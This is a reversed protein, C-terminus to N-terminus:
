ITFRARAPTPDRSAGNLARVLFTYSGRRLHHYSKPSRCAGFSPRRAQHHSKPQRVLACQFGTARGVARFRFTASGTKRSIKHGTIRSNASLLTFTATVQRDADMTVACVGNGSCAGSWGSFMSGPAAFSSLHVIAGGPFPASCASGCDIGSPSSTVRGAGSGAKSVTVAHAPPAALVTVAPAPTTALVTVPEDSHGSAVSNDTRDGNYTAVWYDTGTATTTYGASTAVGGVLSQTSTFLVTGAANRNDYLRFTVTGTPSYGGSVTAKDAVASGVTASAPQASTVISPTAALVSVPEDSYGNAVSNDTSNGNYTAVWYDTGAATTTYGASTAVGGVLSQTDTFLVTGIANPNDYLRFTVTGTPSDGGSVTAKDAVASGVTASAPQTSTVISPTAAVVSVPEDRHGSAVSNDTNDGNYTAVWYDTGTATTTYGASTAVGGVLSQTDSFLVTGTGNPNDYLRFTVTGTPSDGGSVTAKDAIVSGVTASAPQASTSIAPTAKVPATFTITVSAAGSASAENSLGPSVGYSSGGGGSAAGCYGGGGGGGGAYGGGGGGGSSNDFQVGDGGKGGSLTTGSAGPSGGAQPAGGTGGTSGSAGTGGGAPVSGGGSCTNSPLGNGGGTGTDGNGGNGMSSYAAGGGGAAIVLPNSSPGLLGSYGGGGAGDGYTAGGSPYSGANGGGGPSGGAGGVQHQGAGGVGGVVVSLNQAPSVPVATDQVSAGVGGLAAGDNATGGAAGVATVDLSSVSSPVAFTYTNAAAYACAATSGAVSYSGGTGCLAKGSASGVGVLTLGAIVAVLVAIARGRGGLSLLGRRRTACLFTAM